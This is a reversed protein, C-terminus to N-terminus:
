PKLHTERPAYEIGFGVAHMFQALANAPLASSSSQNMANYNAFVSLYRGVRRNVQMGGYRGSTVGNNQLGATRRYAGEIGIHLDRGFQRALHATVSDSKSGFLYGSGGNTGRDYLLGASVFRFQYNLSANVEVGLSGPISKENSSSTWQPGAAINSNFKRSWTRQFSLLGSNTTFGFGFRSYNFQSFRYEPSVSNRATLHWTVGANAMQTNTDLGVGDPYRLLRTGGGMKFYSGYKLNREIEGDATNEVVRSNLTFIAQTSPPNPDPSGIPDGIGPIGSFGTTPAQPRYSLDDSIRLNWKRWYFGQSLQLRQFLGTSYTPGQVTWTYGGGYNLNFPHRQSESAYDLSISPTSTQWDGMSSGFEATQSYRFAYHLNGTVPPGGSATAAPVVQAHAVAGATFLFALLKCVARAEVCHLWRFRWASLALRCSEATTVGILLWLSPLNVCFGFDTMYGKRAAAMDM